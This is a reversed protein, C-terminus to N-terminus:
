NKKHNLMCFAMAYRKLKDQAKQSILFGDVWKMEGCEETNFGKREKENGNGTWM